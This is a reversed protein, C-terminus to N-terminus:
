GRKEVHKLTVITKIKKRKTFSLKRHKSSQNLFIANCTITPATVSTIIFTRADCTRSSSLNQQCRKYYFTKLLKDNEPIFQLLSRQDTLHVCINKLFLNQLVLRHNIVVLTKSVCALQHLGALLFDIAVIPTALIMCEASNLRVNVLKLYFPPEISRGMSM